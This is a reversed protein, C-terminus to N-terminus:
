VLQFRQIPVKHKEMGSFELSALYIHIVCHPSKHNPNHSSFAGRAEAM